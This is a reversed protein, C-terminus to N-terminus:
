ELATSMPKEVLVHKGAELAARTIPGHENMSTLVLVLDIEDAEVIEQYRDTVRSVGYRERMLARREARIDCAAVVEGQKRYILREAAGMYAQMVSGCGIIGIRVPTYM